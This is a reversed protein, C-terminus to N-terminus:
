APDSTSQAAAKLFDTHLKFVELRLKLRTPVEEIDDEVLGRTIAPNAPNPVISVCRFMEDMLVQAEEFPLRGVLSLGYSAMGAMGAEALGEPLEVGHRSLALFARVAWREAQSAAMEQILFVKGKDRGEDTIAVQLTKRAM